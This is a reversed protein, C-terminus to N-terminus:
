LLDEISSVAIKAFRASAEQNTVTFRIATGSVSGGLLVAPAPSYDSAEFIPKDLTITPAATGIRRVVLVRDLAKLGDAAGADGFTILYTIRVLSSPPPTYDLTLNGAAALTANKASATPAVQLSIRGDTSDQFVYGNPAFGGLGATTRGLIRNTSVFTGTVPPSAGTPIIFNNASFNFWGAIEDIAAQVDESLVNGTPEYPMTSATAGPAQLDIRGTEANYVIDWVDGVFNLGLSNPLEAGDQSLVMNGFLGDLAGM